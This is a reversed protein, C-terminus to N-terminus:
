PDHGAIKVGQDVQGATAKGTSLTIGQQRLLTKLEDLDEIKCCTVQPKKSDKLSFTIASDFYM